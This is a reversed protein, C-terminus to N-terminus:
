ALPHQVFEFVPVVFLYNPCCSLVASSSENSQDCPLIQDTSEFSLLSYMGKNVDLM